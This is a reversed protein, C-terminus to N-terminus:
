KGAGADKKSARKRKKKAPKSADTAPAKAAAKTHAVPTIDIAKAAAAAQAHAPYAVAFGIAATVIVLFTRM